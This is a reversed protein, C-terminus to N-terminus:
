AEGSTAYDSSFVPCSSAVYILDESLVSEMGPVKFM